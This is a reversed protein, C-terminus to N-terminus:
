KIVIKESNTKTGNLWLSIIYVGPNMRPTSITGTGKRLQDAEVDIQKILQGKINHITLTAQTTLDPIKGEIEYSIGSGDGAQPNPYYRMGFGAQEPVLVPDENAVTTDALQANGAFIYVYGTYWPNGSGDAQPASVALDCFGDGNFDGAALQWGFQHFPSTPPSSIRLDYMGNPIAKGLWIGAHGIWTFAIWDSGALDSYGDGNFDGYAVKQWSGLQLLNAASYSEATFEETMMIDTGGLRIKNNDWSSSGNCYVMDDYGDGNFDGIGYAAAFIQGGASSYPVQYMLIRDNINFTNSGLYLYRYINFEGNITAGFGAVFDDLGDGNVDGVPEMNHLVQNSVVIDDLLELEWTGGYLIALKFEGNYEDNAWVSCGLDDYGDNNVDGICSLPRIQPTGEDRRVVIEFDPESDADPGGYYFSMACSDPSSEWNKQTLFDDYGDGNVDGANLFFGKNVQGPYQSQLVIDPISDMQASGFYFVIASRQNTGYKRSYLILDDYGDANYDMATIREGFWSNGYHGKFTQMIPMSNQAYIGSIALLFMMLSMMMKPTKM